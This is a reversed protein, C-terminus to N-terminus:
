CNPEKAASSCLTGRKESDDLMEQLEKNHKQCVLLSEKLLDNRKKVDILSLRLNDAQLKVEDHHLLIKRELDGIRSEVDPVDMDPGCVESGTIRKHLNLLLSVTAVNMGDRVAKQMAASRRIVATTACGMGSIAEDFIHQCEKLFIEYTCYIAWDKTREELNEFNDELTSLTHELKSIFRRFESANRALDRHVQASYEKHAVIEEEMRQVQGALKEREAKEQEMLAHDGEEFTALRRRLEKIQDQLQMVLTDKVQRTLYQAKIRQLLKIDHQRYRPDIDDLPRLPEGLYTAALNEAQMILLKMADELVHLDPSGPDEHSVAVALRSLTSRMLEVAGRVAGELESCKAPSSSPMSM